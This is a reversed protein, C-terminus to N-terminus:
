PSFLLWAAAVAFIRSMPIEKSSGTSAMAAYVSRRPARARSDASHERASYMSPCAAICRGPVTAAPGAFAAANGVDYRAALAAGAAAFVEMLAIGRTRALDVIVIL